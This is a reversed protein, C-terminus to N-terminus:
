FTFKVAMRMSRRNQFLYPMGYQNSFILPSTVGYGHANAARIPDWGTMMSLFDVGLTNTAPQPTVM